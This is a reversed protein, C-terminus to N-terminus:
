RFIHALYNSVIAENRWLINGTNPDVPLDKPEKGTLPKIEVMGVAYIDSSLRPKGNSQESPIYGPNGVVITLTTTRAQTTTMVSIEKVAGFDILVIKNDLKRRM